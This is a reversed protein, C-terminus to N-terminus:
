RSRWTRRPPPSTGSRCRATATCCSPSRARTPSSGPSTAVRGLLQRDAAASGRVRGAGGRAAGPGHARRRGRPHHRRRRDVRAVAARQLPARVPRHLRGAARDARSRARRARLPRRPGGPPPPQARRDLKDIAATSGSGCFIVCTSTPRRRGRRPHDRPRGRPLADDAPRHRQSETHTNAYLPMVADRIYDEIFTLSRGSATYDAYTVRRLGYPGRRGRRRRDRRRIARHPPNHREARGHVRHYARSRPTAPSVAVPAVHSAM